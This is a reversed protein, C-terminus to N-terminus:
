SNKEEKEVVFPSVSINKRLNSRNELFFPLENEWGCSKCVVIFKDGSEGAKIVKSSIRWQQDLSKRIIRCHCNPNSCYTERM